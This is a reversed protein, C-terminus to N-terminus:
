DPTEEKKRKERARHRNWGIWAWMKVAQYMTWRKLPSVKLEKMAELFLRDCQKRSFLGRSYLYDHIVSAELAQGFPHEIISWFARPISSGDTIFGKPVKIGVYKFNAMLERKRGYDVPSIILRM